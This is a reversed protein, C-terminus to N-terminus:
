ITVPLDHLLFSLCVIKDALMKNCLNECYSLIVSCRVTHKSTIFFRRVQITPSRISGFYIRSFYFMVINSKCATPMVCDPVVQAHNKLIFLSQM